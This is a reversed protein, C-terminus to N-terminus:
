SGWVVPFLVGVEVWLSVVAIWVGLFGGVVFRWAAGPVPTEAHMLSPLRPLSSGRACVLLSYVRLM